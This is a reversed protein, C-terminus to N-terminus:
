MISCCGKAGCCKADAEKAEAVQPKDGMKEPATAPRAIDTPAAATATADDDAAAPSAHKKEEAAPVSAASAAPAAVVAAPPHAPANASTVAPVVATDTSAKSTHLLAAISGGAYVVSVCGHNAKGSVADWDERTDVLQGQPRATLVALIAPKILQKGGTSHNGAGYIIVVGPFETPGQTVDRNLREEVFETAEAVHLGHLDVEFPGVRENKMNFIKRAAAKASDLAAANLAKGETSLEHAAAKDGREFADHAAAMKATKEVFLSESEARAEKCFIEDADHQAEEAAHRVAQPSVVPTSNHSHGGEKPAAIKIADPAEM